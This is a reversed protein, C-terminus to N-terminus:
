AADTMPRTRHKAEAADIPSFTPCGIQDERGLIM